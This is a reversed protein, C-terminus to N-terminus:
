RNSLQCNGLWQRSFRARRRGTGEGQAPSMVEEEETDLVRVLTTEILYFGAFLVPGHTLEFALEVGAEILAESEAAIFLANAPERPFPLSDALRGIEELFRQDQLEETQVLAAAIGFRVQFGGDDALDLMEQQFHAFAEEELRALLAEGEVFFM